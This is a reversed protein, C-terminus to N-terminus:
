AVSASGRSSPHPRAPTGGCWSYDELMDLTVYWLRGTWGHRVTRWTQSFTVVDKRWKYAVKVVEREGNTMTELTVAGSATDDVPPEVRTEGTGPARAPLAMYSSGVM